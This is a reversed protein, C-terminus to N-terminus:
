CIKNQTTYSHQNNCPFVINRDSKLYAAIRGLARFRELFAALRPFADLSGPIMLRNQDLLEYMVFDAATLADGAFWDGTLFSEYKTLWSHLTTAYAEREAEFGAGLRGYAMTVTRNRFDMGEELMIECRRAEDQNSGLLGHEAAIYRVIANSQTVTADGDVLYPLNPFPYEAGLVTDKVEFWCTKDFSPAPGQEYRKEEYPVQVYELLLRIPQALGRIAWYRRPLRILSPGPHFTAPHFAAPNL